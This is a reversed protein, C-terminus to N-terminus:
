VASRASAVGWAALLAASVASAAALRRRRPSLACLALMSAGHAADVAAGALLLRQGPRRALLAAEALQRAGLVRAFAVAGPEQAGLLAGGLARRPAGLLALGYAARVACLAEASRRM